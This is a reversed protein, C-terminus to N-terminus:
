TLQLNIFAHSRTLTDDLASSFVIEPFNNKVFVSEQNEDGNNAYCM